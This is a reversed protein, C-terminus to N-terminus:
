LFIIANILKGLLMPAMEVDCLSRIGVKTRVSSSVASKTRTATDTLTGSRKKKLGLFRSAAAAAPGSGSAAVDAAASRTSRKPSATGSGSVPTTSTSGVLTSSLRTSLSPRRSDRSFTPSQTLSSRGDHKLPATKPATSGSVTGTKVTLRPRSLTSSRPAAVALDGVDKVSPSRRAITATTLSHGLSLHRSHRGGVSRTRAVDATNRGADGLMSINLGPSIGSSSDYLTSTDLNTTSPHKMHGLGASRPGSRVNTTSSTSITPRTATTM